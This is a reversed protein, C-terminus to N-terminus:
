RRPAVAIPLRRVHGVTRHTTILGSRHRSVESNFTCGISPFSEIVGPGGVEDWATLRRHDVWWGVALAVVVALWLLDRITFRLRM